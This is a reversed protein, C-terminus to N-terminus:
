DPHRHSLYIRDIEKGISNAYERFQLAYPVLFQGDVLVLKNRSEIIHTANAINDDTFASIFTHIRVDGARRVIKIPDEM